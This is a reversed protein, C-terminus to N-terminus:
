KNEAQYCHNNQKAGSVIQRGLPFFFLFDPSKSIASTEIVGNYINGGYRSDRFCRDVFLVVKEIVPRSIGGLELMIEAAEFSVTGVHCGGAGYEVVCFLASQFLFEGFQPLSGLLVLVLFPHLQVGAIEVPARESVSVRFSQGLTRDKMRATFM